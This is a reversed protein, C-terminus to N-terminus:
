QHLAFPVGVLLSTTIMIVLAVFAVICLHALFRQLQLPRVRFLALGILAMTVAAAFLAQYPDGAGRILALKLGVLMMSSALASTSAWAVLPTNTAYRLMPANAASNDGTAVAALIRAVVHDLGHDAAVAVRGALIPSHRRVDAASVKYWIPLLVKSGDHERAVLGDLEKQPWDKAFFSPSLVVIGFRSGSLGHDITRRLSDGVTLSFDDYWVRLGQFMLREALPAVFARKDESAHSIFVDWAHQPADTGSRPQTLTGRHLLPLTSRGIEFFALYLLLGVVLTGAVVKVLFPFDRPALWWASAAAGLGLTATVL